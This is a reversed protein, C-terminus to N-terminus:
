ATDAAAAHAKLGEGQLAQAVAETGSVPAVKGDLRFM